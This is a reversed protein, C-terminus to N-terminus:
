ERLVFSLVHEFGPLCEIPSKHKISFGTKRSIHIDV